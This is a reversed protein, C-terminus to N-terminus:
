AKEAKSKNYVAERDHGNFIDNKFFNFAFIFFIETIRHRGQYYGLHRTKAGMDAGFVYNRAHM